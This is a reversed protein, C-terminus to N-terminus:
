YSVQTSLWNVLPGTVKTICQTIILYIVVVNNNPCCFTANYWHAIYCYKSLGYQITNCYYVNYTTDLKTEDRSALTLCWEYDGDNIVMFPSRYCGVWVLVDM